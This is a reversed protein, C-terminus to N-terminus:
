LIFEKILKGSKQRLSALEQEAKRHINAPQFTMSLNWKFEEFSYTELNHADMFM